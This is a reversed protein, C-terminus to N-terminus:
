PGSANRLVKAAKVIWPQVLAPNDHGDPETHYAVISGCDRGVRVPRRNNHLALHTPLLKVTVGVGGRVVNPPHITCDTHERGPMYSPRKHTDIRERLKSKSM